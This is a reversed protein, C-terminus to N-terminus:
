HRMDKDFFIGISLNFYRPYGLTGKEFIDNSRTTPYRIESNLINGSHIALFIRKDFLNNFRLNVNLNLYQPSKQGIRSEAAILEQPPHSKRQSKIRQAHSTALINGYKWGFPEITWTNHRKYYLIIAICLEFLM